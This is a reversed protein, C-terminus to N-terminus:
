TTESVLVDVQKARGHSGAVGVVEREVSLGKDVGAKETIAEYEDAVFELDRPLDAVSAAAVLAHGLAVRVEEPDGVHVVITEVLRGELQREDVAQVLAAKAGQEQGRGAGVHGAPLEEDVVM